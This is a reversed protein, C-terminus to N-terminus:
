LAPDSLDFGRSLEPHDPSHNGCGSHSGTKLTPKCNSPRLALGIPGGGEAAQPRSAPSNAVKGRQTLRSLVINM